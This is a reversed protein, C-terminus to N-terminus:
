FDQPVVTAEGGIIRNPWTDIPEAFCNPRGISEYCFLPATEVPPPEQGLLLESSMADCGALLAGVCLVAGSRIVTRIQPAFRRTM